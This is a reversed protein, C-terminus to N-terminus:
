HCKLNKMKKTKMLFELYNLHLIFIVRLALKSSKEVFTVMFKIITEYNAVM